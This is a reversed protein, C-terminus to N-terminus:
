RPDAFLMPYRVTWRGQAIRILKKHILRRQLPSVYDLHLKGEVHDYEHQIMRALTGHFTETHERFNEDWYHISISVPRQIPLPIGPISLCGEEKVCQEESYALISANIFVRRPKSAGPRRRKELEHSQHAVSTSDVVFLRLNRNVQPAAIGVGQAYDMTEWMDQILQALGPENPSVPRCKKRLIPSGYAVIPLVM